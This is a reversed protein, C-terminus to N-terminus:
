VFLGYEEQFIKGSLIEPIVDHVYFDELKQEITWILWFETLLLRVM